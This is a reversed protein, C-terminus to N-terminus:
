NGKKGRSYYEVLASVLGPVSHEEAVVEVQFGLERARGATVPGLCAVEIAGPSPLAREGELAERLSEAASPSALTVMDFPAEAWARLLDERLRPNAVTRYVVLEDLHAGAALLAERIVPRAKDGRPWLVRWGRPDWGKRHLEKVLGEATFKGPVVHPEVGGRALARATARGVAAAKTGGLRTPPVGLEELAAFFYSVGNASTFVVLDYSELSPAVQGIRPDHAPEVMIAPAMVVEAGMEELASALSGAQDSPRTVAVRKGSLPLSADNTGPRTAREGM